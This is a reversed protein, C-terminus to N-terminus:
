WGRAWSLFDDTTQQVDLYEPDFTVSEMDGVAVLRKSANLRASELGCSCAGSAMSRVECLASHMLPALADLECRCLRTPKGCNQCLRSAAYLPDYKAAIRTYNDWDEAHECLDMGYMLDDLNDSNAYLKPSHYNKREITM